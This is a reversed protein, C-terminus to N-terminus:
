PLPDVTSEILGFGVGPIAENGVIVHTRESFMGRVGPEWIPIFPLNELLIEEMRQLADLREELKFILDGKVTREYLEDFEKDYFKDLKSQYTSTYVEMSGWPNFLGGSWAGFGLDFKGQEINDYSTNWPVARLQVDIRDAGFANEWEQELFESIQKMNDSNDFYMIEFVMKKGFKEYAKDFFEKAKDLNYGNNEPENKKGQPTDRFKLAHETDAIKQRSVVFPSPYSTKNIDYAITERDTAWFLAKRFNVDRLFAKNEDPTTMNIFLSWTSTTIGTTVRPDESYKDWAAMTMGAYDVDGNEFLQLVTNADEIVRDEIRNIKVTDALVYDPNKEYTRYQDRVWETLIYPGCFDLTDVSTGYTTETQKDNMLKKYLDVRVPSKPGATFSILFDIEPVPYELTIEITNKDVLKIGVDEWKAGGENIDDQSLNVRNTNLAGLRTEYEKQKKEKEEGDSMADIEAKLEELAKEEAQQEQFKINDESYGIWYKKANVVTLDGFWSDSGRYNKLKPDLMLKWSEVIEEATLPAKDSHWVIDDRVKLTWVTGDENRTPMESLLEPVIKYTHGNPEYEFRVFGPLTWEFVAIEATTKYIHQNLTQIKSASQRFVFKDADADSTTTETEKNETETTETETAPAPEETTKSCGAIFAATMLVAVLLAILKKNM